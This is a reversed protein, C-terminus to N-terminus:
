GVIPRFSSSFDTTVSKQLMLCKSYPYGSELGRLRSNASYYSQYPFGNLSDRFLEYSMMANFWTEYVESIDIYLMPIFGDLDEMNEGFYLGEVSYGDKKTQALGEIVYDHVLRHRPHFSGKWHTIVVDLKLNIITEELFAVCENKPVAGAMFGAWISTTNLKEACVQMEEELQKGFDHPAKNPNGREGRTIHIFYSEWGKRNLLWAIPGGMLEADMAHAGIIGIRKKTDAM